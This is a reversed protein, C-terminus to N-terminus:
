SVIHCKTKIQFDPFLLPDSSLNNTILSKGIRRWCLLDVSGAQSEPALVGPSGPGCSSESATGPRAPQSPPLRRRSHCISASGPRLTPRALSAHPETPLLTHSRATPSPSQLRPHTHLHHAASPLQGALVAINGPETATCPRAQVVAVHATPWLRDKFRSSCSPDVQFSCIRNAFGLDIDSGM